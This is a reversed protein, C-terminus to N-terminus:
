KLNFKIINIIGLLVPQHLIYIWLTKRGINELFPVRFTYFWSPMKREVALRGIGTGAIFLFLWPMLPFYDASFFDATVFGFPFLWTQTVTIDMSYFIYGLIFLASFLTIVKVPSIKHLFRNLSCTILISFGLMHLIGFEIMENKFFLMTFISLGFAFALVILGRKLNNKSFAMSIGSICVFIGAGLTLLIQLWESQLIPVPKNLFIEIDYLFHHFVMGVIAMGRLGDILYVRKQM